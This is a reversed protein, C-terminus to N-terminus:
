WLSNPQAFLKCGSLTPVISLSVALVQVTVSEAARHLTRIALTGGSSSRDDLAFEDRLSSFSPFPDFINKRIYRERVSMTPDHSKCQELADVCRSTAM